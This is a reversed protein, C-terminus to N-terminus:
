NKHPFHQFFHFHQYLNHGKQYKEQDRFLIKKLENVGYRLDHQILLGMCREFSRLALM